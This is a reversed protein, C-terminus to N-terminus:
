NMALTVRLFFQPDSLRSIYSINALSICFNGM